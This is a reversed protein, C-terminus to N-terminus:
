ETRIQEKNSNRENGDPSTKKQLERMTGPIVCKACYLPSQMIDVVRFSFIGEIPINEFLEMKM